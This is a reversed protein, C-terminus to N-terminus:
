ESCGSLSTPSTRKSGIPGFATGDLPPPPTATEVGSDSNLTESSGKSSARRAPPLPGGEWGLTPPLGFLLGGLARPAAADDSRRRDGPADAPDAAPLSATRGRADVAWNAAAAASDPLSLGRLSASLGALPDAPGSFPPPPQKPPPPPGPPPVGTWTGGLNADGIAGFLPTPEAAAPPRYTTPESMGLFSLASPAGFSGGGGSGGGSAATESRFKDVRSSIHATIAERATEVDCPQGVVEFIPRHRRSPTTIYTNTDQQIRKITAGKQGVVLGVFEYPVEVSVTVDGERKPPGLAPAPGAPNQRRAERLQSFHEAAALIKQKAFAVDEKRGTIVFVPEEDRKPTKIYTNTEARINKIKGSRLSGLQGINVHLYDTSNKM